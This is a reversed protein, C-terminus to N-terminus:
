AASMKILKSRTPEPLNFEGHRELAELFEEMFPALRKGTLFESLRWVKVLAAEENPGYVRKRHRSVKKREPVPRSLARVAYNRNWGTAQCLADLIQGKKKRDASRYESQYRALIERRASMSLM